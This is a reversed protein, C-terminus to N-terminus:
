LDDDLIGSELKIAKTHLKIAHMRHHNLGPSSGGGLLWYEAAMGHLMLAAKSRLSPGGRASNPHSGGTTAQAVGPAPNEPSSVPPRETINM